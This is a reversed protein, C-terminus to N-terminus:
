ILPGPMMANESSKKWSYIYRMCHHISPIEGWCLLTLSESEVSNEQRQGQTESELTEFIQHKSTAGDRHTIPEAVFIVWEPQGSGQAWVISISISVSIVARKALSLLEGLDAM